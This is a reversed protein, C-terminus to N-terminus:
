SEQAHSRITDLRRQIKIAIFAGLCGAIWFPIARLLILPDDNLIVSWVALVTLIVALTALLWGFYRLVMLGITKMTDGMM